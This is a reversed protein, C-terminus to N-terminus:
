VKAPDKQGASKKVKDGENLSNYTDGGVSFKKKKGDDLQVQITPTKTVNGDEDSYSAMWKKVVTGSWEQALRKAASRKSLKVGGVIVLIIIILGIVFSM